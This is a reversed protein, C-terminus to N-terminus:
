QTKATQSCGIAEMLVSPCECSDDKQGGWIGQRAPTRISHFPFCGQFRFARTDTSVLHSQCHDQTQCVGKCRTQMAECRYVIIFPLCGPGVQLAPFFRSEILAPKCQGLRPAVDRTMRFYPDQVCELCYCISTHHRHSCLGLTCGQDVYFPDLRGQVKFEAM